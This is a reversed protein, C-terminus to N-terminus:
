EEKKAKKLEVTFEAGGDPGNAATLRGGLGLREAADHAIPLGLGFHGDKGKYFREFLHPLDEERIGPGDDAVRVTVM